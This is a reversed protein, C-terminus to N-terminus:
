YSIDLIINLEYKSLLKMLIITVTAIAVPRSYTMSYAPHVHGYTM